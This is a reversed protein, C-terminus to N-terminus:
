SRVCRSNKLKIFPETWAHCPEIVRFITTQVGKLESKLGKSMTQVAKQNMATYKRIRQVIIMM